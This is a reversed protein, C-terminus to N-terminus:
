KKPLLRSLLGRTQPSTITGTEEFKLGRKYWHNYCAWGGVTTLIALGANICRDIFADKRQEKKAILEDTRHEEEKKRAAKAENEEIRLRYLKAVGDIAKSKEDSGDKLDSLSEIEEKIEDDLLKKINDM